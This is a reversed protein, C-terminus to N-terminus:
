CLAALATAALRRKTTCWRAVVVQVAVAPVVLSV